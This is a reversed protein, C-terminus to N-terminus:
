PPASSRTPSAPTSRRPPFARGNSGGLQDTMLAILPSVVVTLGRLTAAPAQYCLSKGSGTAMVVLADRGALAAAIAQDQGPRLRRVGLRALADDLGPRAPAVEGDGGPPRRAVLGTVLRGLVVRNPAGLAGWSARLASLLGEIRAHAAPPEVGAIEAAEVWRALEALEGLPLEAGDIVGPNTTAATTM